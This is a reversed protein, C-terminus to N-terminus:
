LELSHLCLKGQSFTNELKQWSAQCEHFAEIFANFYRSNEYIMQDKKGIFASTGDRINLYM